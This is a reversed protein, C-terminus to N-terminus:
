VRIGGFSCKCQRPPNEPKLVVALFFIISDYLVIDLYQLVAIRLCILTNGRSIGFEPSLFECCPKFYVLLPNEVVLYHIGGNVSIAVKYWGADYFRPSICKLETKGPIITATIKYDENFAVKKEDKKLFHIIALNDSAYSVLNNCVITICQGETYYCAPPICQVFKPPSFIEFTKSGFMDSSPLDESLYDQGNLSAHVTYAAVPLHEPIAFTCCITEGMSSDNNEVVIGDVYWDQLKRKERIGILSLSPMSTIRFSLKHSKLDLTFRTHRSIDFDQSLDCDNVFIRISRSNKEVFLEDASALNEPTFPMSQPLVNVVVPQYYYQFPQPSEHFASGNMSLLVKVTGWDKTSPLIIETYPLNECVVETWNVCEAQCSFLITKNRTFRVKLDGAVFGSGHLSLKTHGRIPGSAPRLFRITFNSSDNAKM